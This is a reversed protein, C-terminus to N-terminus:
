RLEKEHPQLHEFIQPWYYILGLSERIKQFKKEMRPSLILVVVLKPMPNIIIIKTLQAKPRITNDIILDTINNPTSKVPNKREAKNVRRLKNQNIINRPM